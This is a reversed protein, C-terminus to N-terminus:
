GVKVISLIQRNALERVLDTVFSLPVTVYEKPRLHKHVYGGTCSFILEENQNGLNRITVM